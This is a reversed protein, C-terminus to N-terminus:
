EAPIAMESLVNETVNARRDTFRLKVPLWGIEPALWAEIRSDSAHPGAPREVKVANFEGAGTKVWENGVVDFRYAALDNRAGVPLTLSFGPQFRHALRQGLVMLQFQFSLRDQMGEQLEREFKRTSFTVRRTDWDFDTSWEARSITKESYHQPALGHAYVRGRSALELATIGFVTTVLRAAYANDDGYRWHVTTTGTVAAYRTDSTHYVFRASIPLEARQAQPGTLEALLAAGSAELHGGVPASIPEPQLANATTEAGPDAGPPPEALKEPVTEITPTPEPAPVPTADAVPPPAVARPARQRPVPTPTPAPEAVSPPSPALMRVQIPAGAPFDFAPFELTRRGLTLVAVHATVSLAVVVLARLM